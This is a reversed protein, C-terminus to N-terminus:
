DDQDNIPCDIIFVCSHHIIRYVIIIIIPCFLVVVTNNSNKNNNNNVELSTDGIPDNNFITSITNCCLQSM